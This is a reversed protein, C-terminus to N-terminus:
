RRGEEILEKINLSPDSNIRYKLIQSVIDKRKKKLSDISKEDLLESFHTKAKFTGVDM